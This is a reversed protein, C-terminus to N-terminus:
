FGDELLLQSAVKGSQTVMPVGGGPHTTGGAFYLGKLGAARNHPRRFAAWRSNSSAGYLAGRWAGTMRQLDLPTIKRCIEIHPRLNFGRRSLLDLVHAAYNEAGAEWDSLDNLPPVNVQVFWNERGAPADDPSSKSSISVYLTPEEPLTRRKFIEEFELRYDSSFFVNHQLLEEHVKKVGLLLVYTSCSPQRSNLRALLRRFRGEKPLLEAYVTAVDLNAVVAEAEFFEENELIVGGVRNGIIHIGEVRGGTHIEVGLDEALKTYALAIRYVGGVPHWLGQNLEVHAIVNLTAPARYPSAGVYTAFMSMIQRLQPSHLYSEIAQNMTHLGDFRFVDFPSNKFLSNLKPPQDFIFVPSVIRYLRAVYALFSLYGEVDREDIRKVQSLTKPIDSSLDLKSGDPFFFRKLPEVPHLNLYDEMRRGASQFLDEFVGRMTILSPGTDWRYGAQRYEGMKGGVNQNQEFIVVHRGAAALHIAASLGGIGAGIVVIPNSM